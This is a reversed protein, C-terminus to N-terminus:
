GFLQETLGVHEISFSTLPTLSILNKRLSIKCIDFNLNKTKRSLNELIEWIDQFKCINLMILFNMQFITSFNTRKEAPSTLFKTQRQCTPVGLQTIPM